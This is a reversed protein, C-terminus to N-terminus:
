TPHLTRCHSQRALRAMSRCRVETALRTKEARSYTKNSGPSCPIYLGFAEGIEYIKYSRERVVEMEKLPVPRRVQLGTHKRVVVDVKSTQVLEDYRGDSRKKGDYGDDYKVRDFACPASDVHGDCESCKKANGHCARVRTLRLDEGCCCCKCSHFDNEDTTYSASLSCTM